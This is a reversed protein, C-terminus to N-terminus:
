SASDDAHPARVGKSTTTSVVRDGRRSSAARAPRRNPAHGSRSRIGHPDARPRLVCSSAAIIGMV